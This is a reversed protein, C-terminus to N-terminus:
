SSTRRLSYATTWACGVGSDGGADKTGADEAVFGADVPAAAPAPVCEGKVVLTGPGCNYEPPPPHGADSPM